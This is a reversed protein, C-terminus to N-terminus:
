GLPFGPCCIVVPVRLIGSVLWSELCCCGWAGRDWVGCCSEAPHVAMVSERFASACHPHTYTLAPSVKGSSSSDVKLSCFVCCSAPNPSALSSFQNVFAYYAWLLPLKCAALSNPLAVLHSTLHVSQTNFHSLPSCGYLPTPLRLCGEPYHASTWKNLQGEYLM